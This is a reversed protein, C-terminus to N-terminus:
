VIIPHSGEDGEVVNFSWFPQKRRWAKYGASLSVFQYIAFPHHRPVGHLVINKNLEREKLPNSAEDVFLQLDMTNMRCAKGKPQAWIPMHWKPAKQNPMHPCRCKICVHVCADVCSNSRIPLFKNEKHIQSYIYARIFVM